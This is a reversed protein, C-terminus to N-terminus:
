RQKVAGSPQQLQIALEVMLQQGIQHRQDRRGPLMRVDAFGADGVVAQRRRRRAPDFRRPLLRHRKARRVALGARDLHDIAFLPRELGVAREHRLLAVKQLREGVHQGGVDIAAAGFRREPFAFFSETLQRLVNAFHEPQLVGHGALHQIDAGSEFAQPATRGARQVGRGARPELVDM